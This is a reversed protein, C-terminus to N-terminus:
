SGAGPIEHVLKRVGEEAVANGAVNNARLPNVGQYGGWAVADEINAWSARDSLRGALENEGEIPVGQRAAERALWFVRSKAQSGVDPGGENNSMELATYDLAVEPANPLAGVAKVLRVIPAYGHGAADSTWDPLDRTQLLGATLEAERDTGARWHVGPIRPGLEVGSFPARPADFVQVAADLVERGHERLSGAYWDFFDKGYASTADGRAFFGNADAPPRIDKEGGLAAGWAEAASGVSGYKQLVFKRFSEEALGSYAQLAGRTSYGSGM